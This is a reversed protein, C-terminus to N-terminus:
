VEVTGKVRGSPPVARAARSLRCGQISDASSVPPNRAILTVSAARAATGPWITAAPSSQTRESARAPVSIGGSASGRVVRRARAAPAV